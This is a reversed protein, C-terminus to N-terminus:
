GFVRVLCRQLGAADLDAELLKRRGRGGGVLRVDCGLLERLRREVEANARGDVPAAGIRLRPMGGHRGDPGPNPSRPVVHVEFRVTM